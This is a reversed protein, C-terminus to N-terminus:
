WPFVNGGVWGVVLPFVGGGAAVGGGRVRWWWFGVVAPLAGRGWGVTDIEGGPRNGGARLWFRAVVLGVRCHPLGGKAGPLPSRICWALSCVVVVVGCVGPWCKGAGRPEVGVRNLVSLPTGTGVYALALPNHEGGQPASEGEGGVGREKGACAADPCRWWRVYHPPVVM